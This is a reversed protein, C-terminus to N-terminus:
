LHINSNSLPWIEWSERQMNRLKREVARSGNNLFWDCAHLYCRGLMFGEVIFAVNLVLNSNQQIFGIYIRSIQADTIRNQM